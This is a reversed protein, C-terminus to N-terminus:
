VQGRATPSNRKPDAGFASGPAENQGVVPNIDQQRRSLIGPLTAPGGAADDGAIDANQINILESVGRIRPATIPPVAV